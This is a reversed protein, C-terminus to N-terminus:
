LEWEFGHFLRRRCAFPESKFAMWPNVQWLEDTGAGYTPAISTVDKM